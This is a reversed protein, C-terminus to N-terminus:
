QALIDDRTFKSEVRGHVQEFLWRLPERGKGRTCGDIIVFALFLDWDRVNRLLADFRDADIRRGGGGQRYLALPEDHFQVVALLDADSCYEALFARALSAHSMPDLIRVGAAANPKFTDHTHILVKLKWYEEDTLRSRLSELNRKLEAIHARLTGEPHGARPRGWDLNKLYRPDSTIARLISQYDPV